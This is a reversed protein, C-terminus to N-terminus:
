FRDLCERYAKLAAAEPGWGYTKAQEDCALIKRRALDDFAGEVDPIHLQADPRARVVALPTNLALPVGPDGLADTVVKYNRVM